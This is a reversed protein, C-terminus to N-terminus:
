ILERQRIDLYRNIMESGLGDHRAELCQVGLRNLRRFLIQRDRALEAAVITKAMGTMDGAPQTITANLVPDTFTVFLVLHRKALRGINEVMLEATVTDVFDTILIILSRRPLDSALRSLGLTFNTEEASYDIESALHQLRAFSGIGGNPAAFLRPRSDFAYLGVRDGSKLSTYALMLAATVAHDLKPALALPERMLHGSDIALVVQNNREAHFEKSVLRRHRASHKWDITRRDLGPAYDRLAEFESGNGNDRQLHEGFSSDQTLFRVAEQRVRATNTLIHLDRDVTMIRRCWLLGFPSSWRLWVQRLKATGRRKPQLAFHVAITTGPRYILLQAPMPTILDDVDIVAELRVSAGSIAATSTLAVTFDTIQGIQLLSTAPLTATIDRLALVADALLLALLAGLYAAGAPWYYPALIGLLLAPPIASALLWVARRSPYLIRRSAGTM